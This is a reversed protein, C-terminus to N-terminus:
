DGVRVVHLDNARHSIGLVFDAARLVPIEPPDDQRLAVPRLELLGRVSDLRGRSAEPLDAAIEALALHISATMQGAEDHLELAIRRSEEERAHLSRAALVRLEDRSVLMQRYLSLYRQESEKLKREVRTRKRIDRLSWALTVQHNTASIRAGTLAADFPEGDAPALRITLEEIAHRGSRALATLRSRFESRDVPSVFQVLSRGPLGRQRVHLLAGAARNAEQIRGEGDTALYGDPAFEFLAQYHDVPLSLATPTRARRSSGDAGIAGLPRGRFDWARRFAGHGM